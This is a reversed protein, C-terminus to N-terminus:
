ATVAAVRDMYEAVSSQDLYEKLSAIRGDRLKYQMMYSNRYTVGNLVGHSQAEVAVSEGEAITDVVTFSFTDLSGLFGELAPLIEDFSFLGAYPVRAVLGPVFWTMDDTVMAKMAVFDRSSLARCFDLVVGRSTQGASTSNSM